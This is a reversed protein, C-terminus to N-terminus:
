LQKSITILISRIKNRLDEILAAEPVKNQLQDITYKILEKGKLANDDSFANKTNDNYYSFLSKVLSFYNGAM